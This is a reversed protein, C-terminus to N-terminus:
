GVSGNLKMSHYFSMRSPSLKQMSLTQQSSILPMTLDNISPYCNYWFFLYIITQNDIADVSRVLILLDLLNNDGSIKRFHYIVNALWLSISAITKKRKEVWKTKAVLVIPKVFRLWVPPLKPGFIMLGGDDSVLPAVDVSTVVVVFVVLSMSWM